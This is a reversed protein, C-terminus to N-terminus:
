QHAELYAIVEAVTEFSAAIEDPIEVGSDSEIGQFAQVTELSDLGLEELRSQACFQAEAFAAFNDIVLKSLADAEM